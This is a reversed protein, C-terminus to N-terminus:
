KDSRKDVTYTGVIKAVKDKIDVENKYAYEILKDLEKLFVKEDM